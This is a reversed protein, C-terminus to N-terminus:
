QCQKISPGFLQKLYNLSQDANGDKDCIIAQLMNNRANQLWKALENIQHPAWKEVVNNTSDLPDIVQWNELGKPINAQNDGFYVPKRHRVIDYLLDFWEYLMEAYNKPKPTELYAKACILDLLFSPVKEKGPKNQFIGPGIQQHYRWWKVLRLGNNFHIHKGQSNLERVFSTHGQISTRREERNIRILKQINVEETKLLPIVDFRLKQNSISLTASSKTHSVTNEPWQKKLYRKFDPILSHTIAQGKNNRNELIVAIDVDQGEVESGGTLHRRLGTRKAYSGAYHVSAITYGEEKAHKEIRAKIQEFHAKIKPDQEREPAIFNIFCNLRRHILSQTSSKMPLPHENKSM